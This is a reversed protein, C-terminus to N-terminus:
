LRRGIVGQLHQLVAGQFWSPLRGSKLYGHAGEESIQNRAIREALLSVALAM